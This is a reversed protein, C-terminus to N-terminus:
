TRGRFLITYIANILNQLIISNYYVNNNYM